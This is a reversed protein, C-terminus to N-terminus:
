ISWPDSRGELREVKAGRRFAAYGLCAFGLVLMAWTPAEPVGTVTFSASPFFTTNSSATPHVEIDYPGKSGGLPKPSIAGSAIFPEAPITSPPVGCGVTSCWYLGLEGLTYYTSSRSSGRNTESGVVAFTPYPGTVNFVMDGAYAGAATLAPFFSDGASATRPHIASDVDQAYVASRHAATMGCAGAALAFALARFKMIKGL